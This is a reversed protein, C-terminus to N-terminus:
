KNPNCVYCEEMSEVGHHCRNKGGETSAAKAGELIRCRECMGIARYCSCEPLLMELHNRLREIEKDKDKRIEDARAKLLIPQMLAAERVAESILATSEDKSLYEIDFPSRQKQEAYVTCTKSHDSPWLTFWVHPPFGQQEKSDSMNSLGWNNVYEIFHKLIKAVRM